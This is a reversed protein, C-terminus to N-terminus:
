SLMEASAQGAHKIATDGVRRCNGEWKWGSWARFPNGGEDPQDLFQEFGGDQLLNQAAQSPPAAALPAVLLSASLSSVALRRRM